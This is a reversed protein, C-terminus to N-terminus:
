EEWESHTNNYITQANIQEGNYKVGVAQIQQQDNETITANDVSVSGVNQTAKVWQLTDSDIKIVNIQKENVSTYILENEGILSSKYIDNSNIIYNCENDRLLTFQENTMTGTNGNLIIALSPKINKIKQEIEKLCAQVNTATIDTGTNDFTVGQATINLAVTFKSGDAITIILSSTKEDFKVDTVGWSEYKMAISKALAVVMALSVGNDNNM